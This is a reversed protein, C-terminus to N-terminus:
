FAKTVSFELRRRQQDYLPITSMTRSYTFRLAPAFGGVNWDRKYISASALLEWDRRTRGFLPIPADNVQRGVELNLQPRLGWAIEKLVGAGLRADWYSNAAEAAVNRHVAGYVFGVTSRGLARDASFAAEINWSDQESLQSYDDRRLALTTEINWAGAIVKDFALRGGSSGVLVKGGYWRQFITGTARLRGGALHFEPGAEAGAYVDDFRHDPARLVRGYAAVYLAVPRDRLLRLSAGVAASAGVGSRPRADADIRFPLGLIDITEHKTASNINSDPVLGLSVDVRWARRARIAERFRAINRVVPEPPREAIALRFHYDAQEDKRELFLTRALELRVRVLDPNADLIRRFLREARAYDKGALAVMGDLFDREVGGAGDQALRDLLVQAEATRGADIM